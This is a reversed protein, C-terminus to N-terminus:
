ISDLSGDSDDDDFFEEVKEMTKGPSANAEQTEAEPSADPREELNLSVYSREKSSAGGNEEPDESFDDFDDFDDTDDIDHNNKRQMYLYAGAAVAGVAATFLLFKGFKKAM